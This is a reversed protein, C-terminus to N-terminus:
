ADAGRALNGRERDLQRFRLMLSVIDGVGTDDRMSAAVVRAMVMVAQEADLERKEFWDMLALSEKQLRAPTLDVSV